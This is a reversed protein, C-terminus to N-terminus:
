SKYSCNFSYVFYFENCYSICVQRTTDDESFIDMEREQSTLRLQMGALEALSTEFYSDCSASRDIKNTM